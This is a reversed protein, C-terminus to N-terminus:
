SIEHSTISNWPSYYSQVWWLSAKMSSGDIIMLWFSLWEGTGAGHPVGGSTNTTPYNIIFGPLNQHMDRGDVSMQLSETLDWWVLPLFGNICPPAGGTINTLKYGGHISYIYLYLGRILGFTLTSINVLQVSVVQPVVSRIDLLLVM